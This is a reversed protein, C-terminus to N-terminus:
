TYEQKFEYKCDKRCWRCYCQNGSRCSCCCCIKERIIKKMNIEEKEPLQALASKVCEHFEEPREDFVKNWDHKQM